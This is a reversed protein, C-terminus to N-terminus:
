KRDLLAKAARSEYYPPLGMRKAQKKLAEVSKYGFLKSLEEISMKNWHKRLLDEEHKKWPKYSGSSAWVHKDRKLGLKQARAKIGVLTRGPLLKMLEENPLVNFNVILHHDENGTWPEGKVVFIKNIEKVGLKLKRAMGSISMSTRGPLMLMMEENKMSHYFLKVIEVEDKTWHRITSKHSEPLYKGRKLKYNRAKTKIASFNHKPIIALLEENSVDSSYYKKLLKIEEKTWVNVIRRIKLKSAKVIIAARKRKPLLKLLEPFPTAPYHQKLIELENESWLLDLKM